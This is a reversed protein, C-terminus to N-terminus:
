RGMFMSLRDEVDLTLRLLVALVVHLSRLASEDKEAVLIAFLALPEM